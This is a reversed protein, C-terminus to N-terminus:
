PSAIICFPIKHTEMLYNETVSLIELHEDTARARSFGPQVIYVSLFVPLLRSREIIELLQAQNGKQFRSARGASVRKGERRLLHRLLEPPDDMWRVSKQAQGCVEYLNKIEGSPKGDKAFKCHYFEVTVAKNEVKIAVVDASEGKDDDDFIIEFEANLLERIVRYQISTPDKTLGQSEKGLNVDSWDWVRIREVPYPPYKHKLETLLNGELSSGDAFWIIPPHEYFLDVMSQMRLGRKIMVQGDGQLVFCYNSTDGNTAFSLRITASTDEASLDFVIDGDTSPERLHLETLYLPVILGSDFVVDFAGEGEKFFLEPWEICIPMKAPRQVVPKPTLTGKLVEDPDITEDLVKQGISHCWRVLSQVNGKRQSWIRGKYSCGVSTKAGHEYGNGFINSKRANRKQAETLGTEVDSGARMIYRILRGLQEVLGVNQLRLRNIGFFCRFVPPGTILEVEGAVACALDKFYGNNSSSNIYLANQEPSWHVIFLEWDWNFIDPVAAWDISVRRATVIVLTHQQHNIDYHVRELDKYGPIGEAYKEPTWAPCKTRYIVTSLAPRMKQLPIDNPFNRFGELFEWLDVQEQIVAESSQMLLMNWDADQTYLKQLEDRVEIDGINAIFTPEGLNPKTRTFRGALQLTVALSKKVDHLAAIKLEPLDFGEGLMDVCVIIRTEKNLIMHRIREREGKSTIGTHIQVPHFESYQEYIAFVERARDISDVRAMLLHDHQQVLDARLQEVAREAIAHDAKQQDFEVVPRFCIQKFYGEELAQRLPYNFIIKGSVLHGDNRFPTATFQLISGAEFKERFEQWTRAATHHAEDIFLYPCHHAMRVQVGAVCQGVIQATTVIVNCRVFLTDVEETTKPRHKLIGVVPYRASSAIVGFEKLVGLTAFKTAIQTRLADTPVIVLVRKCPKSILVSLMTETKGTGTPMVVTGIRGAIIWHAHTAHVAGIQPPRLGKIQREPDEELYTFSGRWSDTVQQTLREYDIPAAPIHGMEPHRLWHLRQITDEGQQIHRLGLVYRFDSPATISTPIILIPATDGIQPTIIRGTIHGDTYLEETVEVERGPLVLQQVPNGHVKEHIAYLAPLRQTLNSANM